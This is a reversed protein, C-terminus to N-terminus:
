VALAVAAARAAELGTAYESSTLTFQDHEVSEITIVYDYRLQLDPGTTVVGGDALLTQMANYRDELTVSQDPVPTYVVIQVPGTKVDTIM